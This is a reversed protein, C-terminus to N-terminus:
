GGEEKNRLASIVATYSGIQYWLKQHLSSHDHSLTGRSLKTTVIISGNVRHLVSSLAEQNSHYFVSDEHKEIRM